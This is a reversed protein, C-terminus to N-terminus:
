TPIGLAWLYSLDSAIGQAQTRSFGRSRFLSELSLVGKASRPSEESNKLISSIRQWYELSGSLSYVEQLGEQLAESKNSHKQGHTNPFNNAFAGGVSRNLGEVEYAEAAIEVQSIPCDEYVMADGRETAKRADHHCLAFSRLKTMCSPEMKAKLVGERCFFDFRALKDILRLTEHPVDSKKLSAHLIAGMQLASLPCALTIIESRTSAWSLVGEIVLLADLLSTPTFLPRPSSSSSRPLARRLSGTISKKRPPSAKNEVRLTPEYPLQSGRLRVECILGSAASICVSFVGFIARPTHPVSSSRSSPSLPSIEGSESNCSPNLEWPAVSGPTSSSGFFVSSSKRM